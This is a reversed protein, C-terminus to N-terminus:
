FIVMDDMLAWPSSIRSFTIVEGGDFRLTVVGGVVSGFDQIVQAATKSGSWLGDDLKLVDEDDSFGAVHATFGSGRFVFTDSGSGGILLNHGTETTVLTDNGPGGYVTDQGAGAVLRDNGVGGGLVDGGAGAYVTDNGAGAWLRDNNLGGDLTDNDGGGYLTDDGPGGVLSDEGPGGGLLDKGLGGSVTDSDYGAWVIDAGDGATIRDDGLGGFIKDLGGGGFLVDNGGNGSITDNGAYGIVKDDYNSLSMVDDGSLARIILQRDDTATHSLAAAYLATAPLSIGQILWIDAGQWLFEGMAKVTGAVVNGRDDVALDRGLFGIGLDVSGNRGHVFYADQYTAGRVTVNINDYFYDDVANRSYWNLDIDTIDIAYWATLKAM